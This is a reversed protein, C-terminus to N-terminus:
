PPFCAVRPEVTPMQASTRTYRAGTWSYTTPRRDVTPCAELCGAGSTNSIEKSFPTVIMLKCEAFSSELLRYEPSCCYSTSRPTGAGAFGLWTPLLPRRMPTLDALIQTENQRPTMEFQSHASRWPMFFNSACAQAPFVGGEPRMVISEPPVLSPRSPRILTNAV